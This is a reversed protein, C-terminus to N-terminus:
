EDGLGEEAIQLVVKLEEFIKKTLKIVGYGFIPIIGLFLLVPIVQVVWGVILTTGWILLCYFPYRSVCYLGLKWSGKM